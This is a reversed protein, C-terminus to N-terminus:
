RREDSLTELLEGDAGMRRGVGLHFLRETVHQKVLMQAPEGRRVREAEIERSRAQWDTTILKMIESRVHAHRMDDPIYREIPNDRAARVAAYMDEKDGMRYSYVYPPLIAAAPGHQVESSHYLDWGEPVAKEGFYPVVVPVGLCLALYPSPSIEPRGITLLVKSTAVQKTYDKSPVPGRNTLGPPTTQEVDNDKLARANAIPTLSTANQFPPWVDQPVLGMRHPYFYEYLKGLVTVEEKRQNYPVVDLQLCSKELTLPIYTHGPYPYPAVTWENGLPNFTMNEGPQIGYAFKSRGHDGPRAGWYDVTFLKWSPVTGRQEVPIDTVATSNPPFDSRCRPDSLCSLALTDRAYIFTSHECTDFVVDPLANHLKVLNQYQHHNMNVFTYNEEQMTEVLTRLWVTEGSESGGVVAMDWWWDHLVMVNLMNNHCEKPLTEQSGFHPLCAFLSRLSKMNRKNLDNHWSLESYSIDIEAMDLFCKLQRYHRDKWCSSEKERRGVEEEDEPATWNECFGVGSALLRESASRPKLADQSTAAGANEESQHLLSSVSEDEDAYAYRYDFDLELSFPKVSIGVSSDTWIFLTYTGLLFIASILLTRILRDSRLRSTTVLAM